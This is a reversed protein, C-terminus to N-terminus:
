TNYYYVLFTCFVLFLLFWLLIEMDNCATTINKNKRRSMKSIKSKNRLKAFALDLCSIGEEAGHQLHKKLMQLNPFVQCCGMCRFGSYLEELKAPTKASPGSDQALDEPQEEPKGREEQWEIDLSDKGDKLIGALPMYPLSAKSTIRESCTVKGIRIMKAPPQLDETDELAAVGRKMPVPKYYVNMIRKKETSAASVSPNHASSSPIHSHPVFSSNGMEMLDQSLLMKSSELGKKYKSKKGPQQLFKEELHKKKKKHKM